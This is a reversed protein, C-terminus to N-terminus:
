LNFFLLNDWFLITTLRLVSVEYDLEITEASCCLFKIIFLSFTLWSFDFFHKFFWVSIMGEVMISTSYATLNPTPHSLGFLTFWECSAYVSKCVSFFFILFFACYLRRSLFASKELLWEELRVELLLLLLMILILELM